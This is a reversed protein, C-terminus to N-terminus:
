RARAWKPRITTHPIEVCTGLSTEVPESSRWERGHHAEVQEVAQLARPHEGFRERVQEGPGRRALQPCDHPGGIWERSAPRAWVSRRSRRVVPLSSSSGLAQAGAGASSWVSAGLGLAERGCPWSMRQVRDRRAWEGRAPAVDAVLGRARDLFLRDRQQQFAAVHDALRLGSGALRGGEPQRDHLVHVRALVGDLREHQRGRPLQADLHGLRQAGVPGVAPDVHHGDEAAGRDARLLGLQPGAAVDHHPGHPPHEVQDRAVRQHEVVAAEHDEVLGVLHEVEAEELVDLPDERQGGRAALRRQERGRHRRRDALEGVAVHVVRHDDLDLGRRQRDVGHGLELQRDVRPVLRLLQHLHQARLLGVLRDHEHAGLDAGVLQVAGQAVAAEVHARQVPVHGLAGAVAHHQGELAPAHRDQDGGVHGGAAQVDRGDGVDDVVVDRGGGVGVDVADAAGAPDAARAARDREHLRTLLALQLGDFAVDAGADRWHSFPAHRGRRRDPLAGPAM